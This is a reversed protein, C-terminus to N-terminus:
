CACGKDLVLGRPGNPNVLSRATAREDPAGTVSVVTRDEPWACETLAVDPRVISWVEDLLLRNEAWPGGVGIM